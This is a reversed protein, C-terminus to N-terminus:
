KIVPRIEMDTVLNFRNVNKEQLTAIVRGAVPYGATGDGKIAV